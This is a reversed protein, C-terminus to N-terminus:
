GNKKDTENNVWLHCINKTTLVADNFSHLCICGTTHSLVKRWPMCTRGEYPLSGCRNNQAPERAAIPTGLPRLITDNKTHTCLTFVHDRAAYYLKAPRLYLILAKPYSTILQPEFRFSNVFSGCSLFCSVVKNLPSVAKRTGSPSRIFKKNSMGQTKSFRNMVCGVFQVINKTLSKYRIIVSPIRVNKSGCPIM